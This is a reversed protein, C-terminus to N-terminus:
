KKRTRKSPSAIEATPAPEQQLRLERLKATKKERAAIEAAVILRAANDTAASKAQPSMKTPTFFQQRDIAM